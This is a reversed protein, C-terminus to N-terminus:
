SNYLFVTSYKHKAYVPSLLGHLAVVCRIVSPESCVGKLSKSSIYFGESLCIAELALHGGRGNM